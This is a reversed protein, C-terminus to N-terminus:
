GEELEAALRLLEANAPGATLFRERWEPDTIRAALERIRDRGSRTVARLEAEEGARRLALARVLFVDAEDVALGGVDNRLTLARKSQELAGQNDGALLAARATESAARAAIAVQKIALAEDVIANAGDAWDTDGALIRGKVMFLRSLLMLSAASAQAAIEHARSLAEGFSGAHQLALAYGLNLWAYGESVRDGVRRCKEIAMRLAAEAEAYMGVRNYNDALNSEARAARRLDGIAHYVELAAQWHRHNASLDGRAGVIQSYTSHWRGLTAPDSKAAAEAGLLLAEAAQAEGRFTLVFAKTIAANAVAKDSRSKGAEAVGADAAAAAEDAKGAMWLGISLRECAQSRERSDGASGLALRVETEVPGFRGAFYLNDARAM